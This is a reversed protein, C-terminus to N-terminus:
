LHIFNGVILKCEIFYDPDPSDPDPGVKLHISYSEHVMLHPKNGIRLMEENHRSLFIEIKTVRGFAFQFKPKTNSLCLIRPMEPVTALGCHPSNLM